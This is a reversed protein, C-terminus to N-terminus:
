HAKLWHVVFGIAALIVMALASRFIWWILKHSAMAEKYAIATTKGVVLARLAHSIDEELIEHLEETTAEGIWDEILNQDKSNAIEQPTLRM